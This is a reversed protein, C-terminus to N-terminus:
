DDKDQLSPAAGGSGRDGDRLSHAAIQGAHSMRQGREMRRAWGPSQATSTHPSQSSGTTTGGTARWASESGRRYADRFASAPRAVTRRIADGGARACPGALSLLTISAISSTHLPGPKKSSSGSIDALRARMLSIPPSSAFRCLSFHRREPLVPTAGAM